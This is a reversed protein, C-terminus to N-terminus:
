NECEYKLQQLLLYLPLTKPRQRSWMACLTSDVQVGGLFEGQSRAEASRSALM